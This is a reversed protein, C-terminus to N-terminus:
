CFARVSWYHQQGPLHLAPDFRCQGMDRFSVVPTLVGTRMSWVRHVASGLQVLFAIWSFWIWFHKRRMVLYFKAVAAPAGTGRSPKRHHHGFEWLSDFCSTFLRFIFIFSRHSYCIAGCGM